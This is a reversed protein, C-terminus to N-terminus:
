RSIDPSIDKKRKKSCGLKIEQNTSGHEGTEFRVLPSSTFETESLESEFSTSNVELIQKDINVKNIDDNEELRYKGNLCLEMIEKIDRSPMSNKDYIICQNRNMITVEDFVENDSLNKITEPLSCVINDHHNKDVYRPILNMEEQSKGRKLTNKWSTEKDTAIILLDVEYGKNKLLTSTKLPINIDRLTGEIILNYKEKSLDNILREVVQSVFSQTYKPYNVGYIKKIEKLNPHYNRIIDGDIVIMNPYDKMAAETLTTKGAGPQGGILIALPQINKNVPKMNGKLIKNVKNYTKIYELKSYLKEM